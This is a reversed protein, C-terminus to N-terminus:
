AEHLLRSPRTWDNRVDDAIDIISEGFSLDARV